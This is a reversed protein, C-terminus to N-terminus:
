RREFVFPTLSKLEGSRSWSKSKRLSNNRKRMANEHWTSSTCRKWSSPCRKGSACSTALEDEEQSLLGDQEKMFGEFSDRIEETMEEDHEGDKIQPHVFYMGNNPLGDYPEISEFSQTWRTQGKEDMAATIVAMVPIRAIEM